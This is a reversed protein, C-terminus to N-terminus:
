IARRSHQSKKEKYKINKRKTQLQKEHQIEKELKERQVKERKKELEKGKYLLLEHHPIKNEILKTHLDKTLLHSRKSIKPKYTFKEFDKRSNNMQKNRDNM